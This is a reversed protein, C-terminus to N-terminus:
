DAAKRQNLVENTHEGLRPAARRVSGPTASLKVTVGMTRFPGTVPHNTEVVMDRALIRPDTYVEDYNLVPGAPIGLKELAALWHSSAQLRLKGALLAILADNHKVRDPNSVFRPDAIV